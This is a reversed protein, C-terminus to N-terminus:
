VEKSCLIEEYAKYIDRPNKPHPEKKKPETSCM